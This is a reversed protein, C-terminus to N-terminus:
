SLVTFVHACLNAGLTHRSNQQKTSCFTSVKEPNAVVQIFCQEILTRVNFLIRMKLLGTCLIVVEHWECQLCHVCQCYHFLRPLSEKHFSEFFQPKYRLATVFSTTCTSSRPRNNMIGIFRYATHKGLQILHYEIAWATIWFIFTCLIPTWRGNVNKRASSCSVDSDCIFWVRAHMKGFQFIRTCCACPVVSVYVTKAISGLNADEIEHRIRSSAIWEDRQWLWLLWYALRTVVYVVMSREVRRETVLYTIMYVSFACCDFGNVQWQITYIYGHFHVCNLGCNISVTQQQHSYFTHFKFATWKGSQLINCSVM